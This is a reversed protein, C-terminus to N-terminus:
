MIARYLRFEDRYNKNVGFATIGNIAANKSQPESLTYNAKFYQHITTHTIKLKEM